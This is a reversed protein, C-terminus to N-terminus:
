RGSSCLLRWSFDNVFLSPNTEWDHIVPRSSNMGFRALLLLLFLSLLIAQALPLLQYQQRM